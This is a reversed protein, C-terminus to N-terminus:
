GDGNLDVSTFRVTRTYSKGANSEETVKVRETLVARDKIPSLLASAMLIATTTSMSTERRGQSWIMTGFTWDAKPVEELGGWVRWEGGGPRWGAM